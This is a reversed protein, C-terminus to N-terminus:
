TGLEAALEASVRDGVRGIRSIEDISTLVRPAEFDQNQSFSSNLLAQQQPSLPQNFADGIQSNYGPREPRTDRPGSGAVDVIFYRTYSLTVTCKLLDSRDYSVPISAIATPYVQM